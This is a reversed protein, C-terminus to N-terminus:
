VSAVTLSSSRILPTRTPHPNVWFVRITILRPIFVIVISASCWVYRPTAHRCQLAGIGTGAITPLRCSGEFSPAPDDERFDCTKLMRQGCHWLSFGYRVLSITSNSPVGSLAMVGSRGVGIRQYGWSPIVGAAFAQFCVM